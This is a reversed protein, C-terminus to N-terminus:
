GRGPHGTAAAFIGHLTRLHRGTPNPAGGWLLDSAFLVVSGAPATFTTEGAGVASPDGEGAAKRHTGAVVRITTSADLLWVALLGGGAEASMAEGVPAFPSRSRASLRVVGCGPGLVSAAATAVTPHGVVASLEEDRPDLETVRRGYPDRQFEHGANEGAAEFLTEVRARVRNLAAAELVGEIVM